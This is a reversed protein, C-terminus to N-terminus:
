LALPVLSLYLIPDAPVFRFRAHLAEVSDNKHSNVNISSSNNTIIIIITIIVNTPKM